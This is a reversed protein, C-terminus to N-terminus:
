GNIQEPLREFTLEVGLIYPLILVKHQTCVHTTIHVHSRIWVNGYCLESYLLM